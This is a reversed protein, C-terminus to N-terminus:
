VQMRMIEQYAETLRNRMELIFRFSMDAKVVSMVVDHVNNTEGTVLQHLAQDAEVQPANAKELLGQIVNAFSGDANPKTSGGRGVTSTDFTPVAPVPHAGIAPISM